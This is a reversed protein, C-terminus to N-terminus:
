HRRKSAQAAATSSGKRCHSGSARYRATHGIEDLIAPEIHLRIHVRRPQPRESRAAQALQFALQAFAVEHWGREVRPM